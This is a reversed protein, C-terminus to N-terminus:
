RGAPSRARRARAPSLRGAAHRRSAQPWRSSRRVRRRPPHPPLPFSRATRVTRWPRNAAASSARSLARPRPQEGLRVEITRREGDRQVTVAVRDGPERALVAETVDGPADVRTTGIRVIVDGARLGADNAPADPVVQRIAVGGGSAREATSVGLYSRRVRGDDALDRVVERVTNSPVAFGVGVNGRGAGGTEIQSNVGVVRGHEDLLPGGSNGPNIAADTQIADPISFGNPADIQRGVASVIGATVTLPLRFPNGIAVALEGVRVRDSDALALVTLRTDADQPDIKLVALDSSVDRGTV